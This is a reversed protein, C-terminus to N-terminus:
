AGRTPVLVAVYQDGEILFAANEVILAIVHVKVIAYVTSGIIVTDVKQLTTYGFTVDVCSGDGDRLNIAQIANPAKLAEVIQAQSHCLTATNIQQAVAAYVGCLLLLLILALILAGRRKQHVKKDSIFADALLEGDEAWPHKDWPADLPRPHKTNDM